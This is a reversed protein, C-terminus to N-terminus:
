RRCLSLSYHSIRALRHELPEEMFAHVAEFLKVFDLPKELVAGGGIKVAPLFQRPRATILIVPLLPSKSALQELTEWGDKFPLNLDLVVLDFRLAAGLVIAEVSNDATQVRYDEEEFLRALIPRMAADDEALLIKKGAAPAPKLAPRPRLIELLASM